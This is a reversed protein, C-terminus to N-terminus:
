QMKKKNKEEEFKGRGRRPTVTQQVRGTFILQLKFGICPNKLSLIYRSKLFFADPVKKLFVGPVKKAFLYVQFKLLVFDVQFKRELQEAKAAM